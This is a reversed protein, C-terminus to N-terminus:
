ESRCGVAEGTEGGKAEGTLVEGPGSIPEETPRGQWAKLPSQDGDQSLFMSYPPRLPLSLAVPTHWWCFSAQLLCTGKARSACVASVQDCTQRVTLNVVDYPTGALWRSRLWAGQGSSSVFIQLTRGCV